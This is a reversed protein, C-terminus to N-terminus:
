AGCHVFIDDTKPYWIRIGLHKALGCQNDDPKTGLVVELISARNTKYKYEFLQGISARFAYQPSIADTPKVEVLVHNGDRDYQIDIYRDDENPKHGQFTLFKVFRAQLLHHHPYVKRNGFVWYEFQQNTPVNTGSRKKVKLRQRMATKNDRLNNPLFNEDFEGNLFWDIICQYKSPVKKVVAQVISEPRVPQYRSYMKTLANKGSISVPNLRIPQPFWYFMDQPCRWRLWFYHDKWHKLFRNRNQNFKQQVVNLSWLEKWCNRIDLEDAITRMESNEDNHEVNAAIGVAWQNGNHSAIMLIGLNGNVSYNLLRNKFETHFVRFGRWIRSPHNNWEEHGFGTKKLYKCNSRQGIPKEYHQDNWVIAKLISAKMTAETIRNKM